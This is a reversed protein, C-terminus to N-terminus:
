KKSGASRSIESVEAGPVTVAGIVPVELQLGDGEVRAATAVWVCGDNTKVECESVGPVIDRLGLAKAQTGAKYTSVGFLVSSIKVLGDGFGSFDGELFDGRELLVGPRNPMLNGGTWHGSDEGQLSRLVEKMRDKDRFNRAVDPRLGEIDLASRVFAMPTQLQELAGTLRDVRGVRAGLWRVATVLADQDLCQEVQYHAAIRARLAEPLAAAPDESVVSLTVHVLKAFAHLYRNTNELFRPAVFVVHPM